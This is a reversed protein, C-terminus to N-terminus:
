LEENHKVIGGKKVPLVRYKTTHDRAHIGHMGYFLSSALTARHSIGVVHRRDSHFRIGSADLQFILKVYLSLTRHTAVDFQSGALLKGISIIRQFRKLFGVAKLSLLLQRGAGRNAAAKQGKAATRTGAATVSAAGPMPRLWRWISECTCSGSAACDSTRTDTVTRVAAFWPSVPSSWCLASKQIKGSECCVGTAVPVPRLDKDWQWEGRAASGTYRPWSYANILYLQHNLLRRIGARQVCLGVVIAEPKRPVTSWYWRQDILQCQNQQSGHIM